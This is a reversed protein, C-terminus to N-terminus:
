KTKTKTEKVEIVKVEKILGMKLRMEDKEVTEGALVMKTGDYYNMAAAYM